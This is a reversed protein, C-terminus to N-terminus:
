DGGRRSRLTKAVSMNNSQQPHYVKANTCGFIVHNWWFLLQSTEHEDQETKADEFYSVINQYFQTYHFDEDQIRWSSCSSLAFRLNSRTRKESSGKRRKQPLESLTGPDGPDDNVAFESDVSSPSTFIHKFTKVLLEHKFLGKMPEKPDYKEDKYLLRPWSGETVFFDPHFERIGARHHPNNWNFDVPCLLRGIADHYFGRRTKDCLKLAPEPPPSSSAMVWNVVALKLSAADDGRAGDMGKNLHQYVYDLEQSDKEPSFEKKLSPMLKLLEEYNRFVRNQEESHEVNPDDLCARRDAEDVMDKIRDALTVLRRILRGASLLKD